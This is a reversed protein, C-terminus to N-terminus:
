SMTNSILEEFQMEKNTDTLNILIKLFFDFYTGFCERNETIKDNKLM